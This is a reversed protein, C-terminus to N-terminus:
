KRREAASTCSVRTTSSASTAPTSGATAFAARTEEPANYYGAHRERRARADRRRRAIKCRSAPSRSEWRATARRAAPSEPDRHAGDRDAWLGPRRRLRAAGLVGRAGSRAARRRRRVGLVEVRVGSPHPPLAVVAPGLADEGAADRRRGARRRLVHDRLVELIKPVCVLVSIRRERIQRVIDDPAYSRTFVVVGPLMPPVFTAMAQGFMHSLPLLNLFRIPLFPRTYHRYKAMEREIPVINALINRHTIVVGKPEATAGSTFIIEATDDADIVDACRRRRTAPREIGASSPHGDPSRSRGCRGDRHSSRQDVAEGVLVLGRTSSTPSAHFSIPRPGTTSPCSSRRRRAPLGLVRHDVRTPERGLHRGSHGQGIGDADLRAAFARAAAAVEAYRTPGADSLRRRLGPIRRPDRASGRLFRDAHAAGDPHIIISFGHRERGNKRCARQVVAQQLRRQPLEEAARRELGLRDRRQRGVAPQRDLRGVIRRHQRDAPESRAVHEVHRRATREGRM